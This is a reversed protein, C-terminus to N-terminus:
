GETETSVEDLWRELLRVFVQCRPSGCESRIVVGFPFVGQEIGARLITPSIRMGMSRLRYAAEEATMTEIVKM